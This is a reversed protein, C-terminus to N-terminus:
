LINDVLILHDRHFTHQHDQFGVDVDYFINISYHRCM